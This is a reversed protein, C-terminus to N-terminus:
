TARCPLFAAHLLVGTFFLASGLMANEEARFEEGLGVAEVQDWDAQRFRGVAASVEEATAELGSEGVELADMALGQTMRPWAKELTEPKGLIDISVLRGGLAIAVGIAPAPYPIRLQKASKAHAGIAASLDETTSSVGMAGHRRRIEAWMAIQDSGGRGSGATRKLFSRLSPPCHSGSRFRRSEYKWRGREVCAVPIRIRSGAGALVTTNLMRHQKAGRLETGELLLCPLDGANEVTLEFVSGAESVEQVSVSGTEMAEDSLLYELANDPFPFREVFLPFVTLPSCRIPEGVRIEPIPFSM